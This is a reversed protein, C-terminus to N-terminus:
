SPQAPQHEKLLQYQIWCLCIWMPCVVIAPCCQSTSLANCRQSFPLSSFPLWQKATQHFYLGQYKESYHTSAQKYKCSHTQSLSPIFDKYTILNDHLSGCLFNPTNIKVCCVPGPSLMEVERYECCTYSVSRGLVIASLFSIFGDLFASTSITSLWTCFPM